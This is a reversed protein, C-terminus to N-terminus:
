AVKGIEAVKRGRARHIMSPVVFRNNQEIRVDAEAGAIQQVVPVISGSEDVSITIHMKGGQGGGYKRALNSPFDVEEGQDIIAPMERPGLWAPKGDHFRSAFAMAGVPVQRGGGPRVGPAKGGHAVPVGTVGRFVSGILSGLIGGSPGGAATGFIGALPGSGLLAAQLVAEGISGALRAFADSLSDAGRVAEFMTEALFQQAQAADNMRQLSATAEGYADAVAAIQGRLEPTLAVNERAALNLLEQEATYRAVEGAAMGFVDAQIRLGETEKVTADIADRVKELAKIADADLIGVGGAIDTGTAPPTLGGPLIDAAGPILNTPFSGFTQSTAGFAEQWARNFEKQAEAAGKMREAIAEAAGAFDRGVFRQMATALTGIWSVVESVGTRVSVWVANLVGGVRVTVGGVKVTEDSFQVLLGIVTALAAAALGIPNRLLTITLLEVAAVARLIAGVLAPGFAVLMAAGVAKATRVVAGMNDAAAKLAEALGESLATTTGLVEAQLASWLRGAQFGPSAAMKDFAEQTSGAKTSMQDLISSFDQGAQGALALIPVLAEVGGFLQALAATSGGTAEVLGRIFESLGRAQLGTATFDIGLQKAMKTAESTPKVVAALIARVGTVAEKTSIGGKTLASVAAALQDFGVGAQAALPAVRGLASSLEGITTKGARMAVFLADSVASAGEVRDGYANLVSTLGDAAVEISTVGGVALKNAATLLETAEAASSAGASIIQYFAKTQVVPFGGFAAAQDRAAKELGRMDFAATDVLTSVEAIADKFAFMGKFSFAAAATLALGALRTRLLFTARDIVGATQLTIAGMKTVAGSALRLSSAAQQSARGVGAVSRRVRGMSRQMRDSSARTTREGARLSRELPSLNGRIVVEASGAEM